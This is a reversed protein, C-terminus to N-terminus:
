ESAAFIRTRTRGPRSALTTEGALTLYARMRRLTVRGIGRVRLIDEVHQFHHVRERLRVIAEARAPGIGPVRVLEEESAANLNVVGEAASEIAPHAAPNATPASRASPPDAHASAGLLSACLAAALALLKM